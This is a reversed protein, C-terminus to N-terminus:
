NSYYFGIKFIYHNSFHVYEVSMLRRNNCECQKVGIIRKLDVMRIPSLKLVTTLLVASTFPPITVLM